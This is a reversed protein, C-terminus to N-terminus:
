GNSDESEVVTIEVVQFKGDAYKEANEKNDFVPIMGTMGDACSLSLTESLNFAPLEVEIDKKLAMVIWM